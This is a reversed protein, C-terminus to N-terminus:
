KAADDFLAAGQVASLDMYFTKVPLLGDGYGKGGTKLGNDTANSSLSPAICTERLEKQVKPPVDERKGFPQGDLQLVDGKLAALVDMRPMAQVVSFGVRVTDANGVAYQTVNVRQPKGAADLEVEGIFFYRAADTAAALAYRENWNFKGQVFFPRLAAPAAETASMAFVPARANSLSRGDFSFTVEKAPSAAPRAFAAFLPRDVRVERLRIGTGNKGTEAKWQGGTLLDLAGDVLAFCFTNDELLTLQAQSDSAGQTYRGVFAKEAPPAAQAGAPLLLAAALAALTPGTLRRPTTPM